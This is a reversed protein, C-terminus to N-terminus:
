HDLLYATKVLRSLLLRRHEIESETTDHDTTGEVADILLSLDDIGLRVNKFTQGPSSITM